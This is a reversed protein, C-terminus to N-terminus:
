LAFTASSFAASGASSITDMKGLLVRFAQQVIEDPMLSGVTEVTFIFEGKVPAIQIADGHGLATATQTCEECYTCKLPDEISIQADNKQDLRYVHSPCSAVFLQRERDSWSRIKSQDLDIKPVFQYTAISAPSWKAHDKGTGKKAIATLKLEQNPALKGLLIADDPDQKWHVPLVKQDKTEPILDNSTILVHESTTNHVHLIFRVSCKECNQVCSCQDFNNFRDVTQSLLPILGLRHALFEDYGSSTNTEFEVTEIAFTPVGSIM